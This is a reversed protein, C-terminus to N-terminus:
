PDRCTIPKKIVNNHLYTTLCVPSVSCVTISSQSPKICSKVNPVFVDDTSTPLMYARSTSLYTNAYLCTPMLTKKTLLLRSKQDSQKKLMLHNSTSHGSLLPPFKSNNLWFSTVYKVLRISRNYLKIKLSKDSCLIENGLLKNGNKILHIDYKYFLTMNLSRDIDLWVLQHKLTYLNHKSFKSILLTNIVNIRGHRWSNKTDRPLLPKIVVNANQCQAQASLGFTILGNAIQKPSNHDVNNIGGLIFFYKVSCNKSFNM